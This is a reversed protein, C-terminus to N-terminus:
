LEFMFLSKFNETTVTALSEFPTNRLGALFKATEKVYAPENRKVRSRYPAPVIYPSDTEILLKKAPIKRAVDRLSHAKPFTIIGSFSILFSKEMMQKAFEWDETFCHLIGGCTFHEEKIANSIERAAQRSHVIVPLSLNKALNLQQRFVDIQKKPSSFNYHFDLGIEGIACINKAKALEEIKEMSDQTFHKANHPHIGIATLINKHSENLHMGIQLENSNTFEVPCLIAQIGEEFARHIVQSRDKDFDAMSLHAHSDILASKM